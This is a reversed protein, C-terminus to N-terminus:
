EMEEAYREALFESGEETLQGENSIYQAFNSQDWQGTVDIYNAMEIQDTVAKINANLRFLANDNYSPTAIAGSVYIPVDPLETNIENLFQYLDDFYTSYSMTGDTLAPMANQGYVVFIQTPNEEVVDEQLRALGSNGANEPQNVNVDTGAVGQNIATINLKEELLTVFSNTSAGYNHGIVVLKEDSAETEPQKIEADGSLYLSTLESEGSYVLEIEHWGESDTFIEIESKTGDNRLEKSTVLEQDVYISVTGEINRQKLTAYSSNTSIKATRGYAPEGTSQLTGQMVTGWDEVEVQDWNGHSLLWADDTATVEMEASTQGNSSTDTTSDNQEASTATSSTDPTQNEWHIEGLIIIAILTILSLLLIIAQKM